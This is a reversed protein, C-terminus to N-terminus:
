FMNRFERVQKRLLIKTVLRFALMIYWLFYRLTLKIITASKSAHLYKNLMYVVSPPFPSFYYLTTIQYDTNNYLRPIYTM